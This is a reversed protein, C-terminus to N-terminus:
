SGVQQELQLGKRVTVNTISGDKEVVFQIYVTGEIGKLFANTPYKINEQVHKNLEHNSIHAPQDVIYQSYITTDNPLVDKKIEQAFSTKFFILSLLALFYLKM